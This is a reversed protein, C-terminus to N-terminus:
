RLDEPESCYECFHQDHQEIPKIENCLPCIMEEM